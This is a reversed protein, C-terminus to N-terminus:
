YYCSFVNGTIARKVLSRSSKTQESGEIPLASFIKGVSPM